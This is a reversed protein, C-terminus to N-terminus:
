EKNFEKITMQEGSREAVFALTDGPRIANFALGDQIKFTTPATADSSGVTGSLRIDMTGSAEDVKVVQGKLREQGTKEVTVPKGATGSSAGQVDQAAASGMACIGIALLVPLFNAKM